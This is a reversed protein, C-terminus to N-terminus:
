AGGEYEIGAEVIERLRESKSQEEDMTEILYSYQGDDLTASFSVM